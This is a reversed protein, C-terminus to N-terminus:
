PINSNWGTAFDLALEARLASLRAATTVRAPGYFKFFDIGAVKKEEVHKMVRPAMFHASDEAEADMPEVISVGGPEAKGAEEEMQDQVRQAISGNKKM